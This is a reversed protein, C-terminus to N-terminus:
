QPACRPDRAQPQVSTLTPSPAVGATRSPVGLGPRLGTCPSRLEQHPLMMEKRLHRSACSVRLRLGTPSVSSPTVPLM